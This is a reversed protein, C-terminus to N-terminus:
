LLEKIIQGSDSYRVKRSSLVYQKNPDIGLAHYLTAFLDEVEVPRSAIDMGDKDTAGIVRGGQLPGGAVVVSFGRTWHDRGSQPNIEPTRGFEGAWVVVTEELLRRDALDQLLTGFGADLSASLNKVLRFNDAHTDWGGLGVEVSPVGAEILRRALLCKQGFDGGYAKRTKEPEQSLDFARLLPTTMLDQAKQSAEKTRDIEAGQRGERFSEDQGELLEARRRAREAEVLARINPIPDAANQITFPLHREGFIPSLPIPAPQFAVFTPLPFDNKSVEHAVVTGLPAFPLGAIPDYGTHLLHTGREHAAEDTRITRLISFKDGQAAIRPLHESIKMGRSATEIAKFEGGTKRGPKPDWTDLQSPAGPMWLLIGYKARANRGEQALLPLGFKEALAAGASM